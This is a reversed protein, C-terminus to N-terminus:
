FIFPFYPLLEKGLASIKGFKEFEAGLFFINPFHKFAYAQRCHLFSKSLKRRHRIIEAIEGIIFSNVSVQFLDPSMGNDIKGNGFEALIIPYLIFRM